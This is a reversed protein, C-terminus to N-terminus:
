AKELKKEKRQNRWLLTTITFGVLPFVTGFVSSTFKFFREIKDFTFSDFFSESESTMVSQAESLPVPRANTISEPMVETYRIPPINSAPVPLDVAEPVKIEKGEESEVLPIDSYEKKPSAPAIAMTRPKSVYGRHSGGISAEPKYKYTRTVSRKSPATQPKTNPVPIPAIQEASPINLPEEVKKNVSSEINTSLEQTTLYQAELYPWTFHVFTVFSLSFIAIQILYYLKTNKM